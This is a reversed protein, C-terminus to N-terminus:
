MPLKGASAAAKAKGEEYKVYSYYVGGLCNLFLGAVNVTNFKVGGLLFFGLLVSLVNKLQGVVTTTLPSNVTTCLFMSYNLLCGLLLNLLFCVEFNFSTIHPYAIVSPLENNLLVFLSVFPIALLSNYYLLGFNNLGNEAGSKAVWILYGAQACCSLLAMAYSYPDFSLDGMGAVIAGCVIIGVSIKVRGSSSKNILFREGVLVVLITLRKLVGYMPINLNELATLAVGVNLSYLLSVPLLSRCKSMEPTPFSIFNMFKLFELFILTFVHQSLLIFNPYKFQWESLVAKNFFTTSISVVAYFAAASASKLAISVSDMKGWSTYYVM